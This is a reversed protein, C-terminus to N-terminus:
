CNKHMFNYKMFITLDYCRNFCIYKVILSVQCKKSAEFIYVAFQLAICIHKNSILVNSLIRRFFINILYIVHRRTMMFIKKIM